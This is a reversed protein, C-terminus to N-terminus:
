PAGGDSAGDDQPAGPKVLLPPREQGKEKLQFELRRFLITPAVGSVPVWGSEAGCFGNFVQADDGAAIISNFAVLPTGVLDIGRVLQDPRGDAFVRWSTSARVNFSNPAMRGTLTFGGDIEEVLMGYELGQKKVEDLLLARLKQQTVTQDATVITNAMRAVPANGAMRRGHGNSHAFGEIPSRDMMFGVFNGDRVLEAPAAAVGEDDWTYYGNLDTTGWHERTPDDVVDIFPPLIPEGVYEAFTKGEDEKKQRTGEVRHGFVEHFFVATARGDLIVPGSYPTGRPAKRLADLKTTAEKAWATLEEDSPLGSPDHADKSMFVHVQDGDPATTSVSLSVRVLNTGHVLRTGETDVFTTTVHSAQLQAFGWHVDPDVELLKSLEVLRAEWAAKDVVIPAPPKRDVVGVRTEFDPSTDEEEVKVSRNARIMVIRESEDRYRRDIERWVTHRLAYSDVAGIPLEVADRMSDELSSFGRLPHTSDLDPTGVRMEVDLTRTHDDDSQALTGARAGINISEREEIALAVYHPKEDRTALATQARGLEEVLVDELTAAHVVSLWLGIM